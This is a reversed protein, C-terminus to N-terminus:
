KTKESISERKRLNGRSLFYPLMGAACGLINMVVDSGQSLGTGAAYQWYEIGCSVLLGLLASWPGMLVTLCLGLPLYLFANMLMERYFENTPEALFRFTHVDTTERGAVAFHWILGAACLVGALNLMKWLRAPIRRYGLYWLGVWAASVLAVTDFGWGYVKEMCLRVQGPAPLM